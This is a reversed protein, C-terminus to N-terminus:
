FLGQPEAYKISFFILISFFLQLVSFGGVACLLVWLVSHLEIWLEEQGEEFPAQVPYEILNDSGLLSFLLLSWVGWRV